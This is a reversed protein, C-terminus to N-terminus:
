EGARDRTVRDVEIEREHDRAARVRTGWEVTVEVARQHRSVHEASGHRVIVTRRALLAELPLLACTHDRDTRGAFLNASGSGQISLSWCTSVADRVGVIRSSSSPKTRESNEGGSASLAGLSIAGGGGGGGAGSNGGDGSAMSSASFCCGFVLPRTSTASCTPTISLSRKSDCSVNTIELAPTCAIM